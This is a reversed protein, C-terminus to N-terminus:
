RGQMQIPMKEWENARLLGLIMMGEGVGEYIGGTVGEVWWAALNTFATGVKGENLRLVTSGLSVSGKGLSDAADLTATVLRETIRHSREYRYVQQLLIKVYPLLFQVILFFQVISSALLRHLYSRETPYRTGAGQNAMTVAAEAGPQVASSAALTVKVRAPLNHQITMSEEDTLDAPLADLLYGLANIYLSRVFRGDCTSQQAEYGANRLLSFAPIVRNWRLGSEVEYKALMSGRDMADGESGEDHDLAELTKGSSSSASSRSDYSEPCVSSGATAPRRSEEAGLESAASSPPRCYGLDSTSFPALTRLADAQRMPGVLGDTATDSRDRDASGMAQHLSFNLRPIRRRIAAPLAPLLVPLGTSYAM